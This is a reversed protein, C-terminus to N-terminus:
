VTFALAVAKYEVIFRNEAYEEFFFVLTSGAAPTMTTISQSGLQYLSLQSSGQRGWSISLSGTFSSGLDISVVFARGYNDVKDPLNLTLYKKTSVSLINSVGDKINYVDRSSTSSSEAPPTYLELRGPDGKDGKAGADGKEGVVAMKYAWLSVPQTSGGYVDGAAALCEYIKRTATMLLMDGPQADDVFTGVGSFNGPTTDNGSFTGVDSARWRSGREGTEGKEGIFDPDGSITEQISDLLATRDAATMSGISVTGDRGDQGDRGDRGAKGDRGDSGDRGNHIEIRTDRSDHLVLVSTGGPESSAEYSQVYVSTGPEGTDGKLSELWKEATGEFGNDCAVEYASKGDAGDRGNIGPLGPEGRDGKDGKSVADWRARDEASVHMLLDGAHGALDSVPKRVSEDVYKRTATTEHSM